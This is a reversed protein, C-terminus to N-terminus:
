AGVEVGDVIGCLLSCVTDRDQCFEDRGDPWSIVYPPQAIVRETVRAVYRDGVFVEWQPTLDRVQRFELEEESM